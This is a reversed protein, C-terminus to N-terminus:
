KGQKKYINFVVLLIKQLTDSVEFHYINGGIQNLRRKISEQGRNASVTSFPLSNKVYENLIEIELRGADSLTIQITVQAPPAYKIMNTLLEQYILILHHRIKLNIEREPIAAPYRFVCSINLPLLYDEAFDELKTFLDFVSDKTPDVTWIMTHLSILAERSVGTLKQLATSQLDPIDIQISREIKQTLISIINLKNGIDDHLDDAIQQRIIQEQLVRKVRSRYILYAFLIGSAVLLLMFWWTEYFPTQIFLPLTALMGFDGSPVKVQVEFLYNGPPLKFYKVDREGDTYNWIDSIGKMRYKFIIKDRHIYESSGLVIEIYEPYPWLTLGEEGVHFTKLTDQSSNYAKVASIITTHRYHIDPVSDPHFYLMGNLSGFFLTGDSFRASSGTNFEDSPLGNEVFYNCFTGSVTNFRSLGRHTSVWLTSDHHSGEIRCTVNSSLGDDTNLWRWQDLKNRCAIGKGKTAVWLNEFRDLYLGSVITGEMYHGHPDTEYRQLATNYKLRFLGNETGIWISSDRDKLLARIIPQEFKQGSRPDVYGQFVAPAAPSNHLLELYTGAWITGRFDQCLSLAHYAGSEPTKNTLITNKLIDETTFDWKGIGNELDFALLCGGKELALFSWVGKIAPFFGVRDDKLNGSYLGNYTGAWWRGFNDTHIGRIEKNKLANITKFAAQKARVIFLGSNTGFGQQGAGLPVPYNLLVRQPQLNDVFRLAPFFDYLSDDSVKWAQRHKDFYYLNWAIDWAVMGKATYILHVFGKVEPINNHETLIPSQVCSDPTVYCTASVHPLLWAADTREPDVIMKPFSFLPVKFWPQMVFQQRGAPIIKFMLGHSLGFFFGAKSREIQVCKSLMDDKIGLDWEHMNQRRVPDIVCAGKRTCVFIIGSSDDAVDLDTIHHDPLQQLFSGAVDYRSIRFGDYSYLGNQTGIWIQGKKGICVATIVQNVLGDKLSIRRIEFNTQQGQAMSTANWLLGIAFLLCRIRSCVCGVSWVYKGM